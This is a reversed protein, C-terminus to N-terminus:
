LPKGALEAGYKADIEKIHGVLWDRLFDLLDITVTIKGAAADKEFEAVKDIFKKHMEQQVGLGSYEHKKMFSEEQAFHEQAYAKMEKLLSAVFEKGKGQSMATHFNNTMVILKKHAEDFEPIKVSLSNEWEMFVM